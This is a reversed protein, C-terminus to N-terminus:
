QFFNPLDNIPLPIPNLLYRGIPGLNRRFNALKRRDM